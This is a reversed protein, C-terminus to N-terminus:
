LKYPNELVYNSDYKDSSLYFKYNENNMCRKDDLIKKDIDMLFQANNQLFMRLQNNNELNNMKKINYNIYKSHEYNTVLRGKDNMMAPCNNNYFINNM